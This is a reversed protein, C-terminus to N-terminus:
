LSCFQRKALDIDVFSQYGKDLRGVVGGVYESGQVTGRFSANSIMIAGTVGYFGGVYDRGNVSGEVEVNHLGTYAYDHATTWIRAFLGGVYDSVSQVRLYSKVNVLLGKGYIAIGATGYGGGRISRVSGEMLINHERRMNRYFSEMRKHKGAEFHQQIEDFPLIFHETDVENVPMDQTERLARFCHRDLM